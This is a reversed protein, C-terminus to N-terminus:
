KIRKREGAINWESLGEPRGLSNLTKQEVLSFKRDNRRYNFPEKLAVPPNTIIRLNRLLNKSISHVMLPHLLYVDGVNGTAEHFSSDRTLNRDRIWSHYISHFREREEDSIDQPILFPNTGAPHDYQLCKLM